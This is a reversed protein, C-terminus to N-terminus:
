NWVLFHITKRGNMIIVTGRTGDYREIDVARTRYKYQWDLNEEYVIDEEQPIERIIRIGKFLEEPKFNIRQEITMTRLRQNSGNMWLKLFQNINALQHSLSFRIHHANCILLDELDLREFQNSLSGINLSDFNQILLKQLRIGEHPYPNQFLRLKQLDPLFTELGKNVFDRPEGFNFGLSHFKGFVKKIAGLDFGEGGGTFIMEIEQRPNVVYLIHEYWERIELHNMFEIDTWRTNFGIGEKVQIWFKDPKVLKEMNNQPRKYFSITIDWPGIYLCTGGNFWVQFRPIDLSITGITFPIPKLQLSRVLEKTNRSLLSVLLRSLPIKLNMM